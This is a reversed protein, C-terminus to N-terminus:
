MMKKMLMNVLTMLLVFVVAHVAVGVQSPVGNKEEDLVPVAKHVLEFTKPNAVAFFMVAMMADKMLASTVSKM